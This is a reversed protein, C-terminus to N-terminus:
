KTGEGTRYRDVALVAEATDVQRVASWRDGSKGGVSDAL